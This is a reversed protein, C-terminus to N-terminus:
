CGKLPSMVGGGASRRTLPVMSDCKKIKVKREAIFEGIIHAKSIIKRLVSRKVEKFLFLKVLPEPDKAFDWVGVARGDVLITSTSNGSRDFVRDIHEHDLYREREKYGMLYPDLGPLLNVTRKKSSAQTEILKKDSRLLVFEGRLVSIEVRATQTQINSLAERVKTKSLGTWWAVDNETVPGFSILYQQVLLTRSEMQDMEILDVTPFYEHFVSYKRPSSRVLLGQDCMLYLIASVNLQTDLAKKIESATMERGQLLDLISKSFEEYTRSSVGRFEAYRRSLRENSDRTATYAIPMMEKTLIYLTARMCRIKGLNRKVYLEEDLDAKTFNQTRALLSLYPTTLSTAHLGGVDAVIRVIDDTASGEILHQKGLVFHNIGELDIKKM